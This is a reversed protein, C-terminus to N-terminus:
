HSRITLVEAKLRATCCTSIIITDGIYLINRISLYIMAKATTRLSTLLQVKYAWRDARAVQLYLKADPM